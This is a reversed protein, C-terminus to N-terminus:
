ALLSASRAAAERWFGRIWLFYMREQRTSLSPQFSYLEYAMYPSRCTSNHKHIRTSSSSISYYLHRIGLKRLRQSDLKVPKPHLRNRHYHSRLLYILQSPLKTPHHAPFTCRAKYERGDNKPVWNRCGRDCGAFM